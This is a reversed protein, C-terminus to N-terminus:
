YRIPRIPFSRRRLGLCCTRRAAAQQRGRHPGGNHDCCAGGAKVDAYALVKWDNGDSLFAGTAEFTTAASGGTESTDFQNVGLQFQDTDGVAFAAPPISITYLHWLNDTTPISLREFVGSASHLNFWIPGAGSTVKIWIGGTMTKNNIVSTGFSQHIESANTGSSSVAPMAIRTVNGTTGDPLTDSVTTVTPAAPAGFGSTPWTASVSLDNNQLAWNTIGFNVATISPDFGGGVPARASGGASLLTVTGAISSQGFILAVLFLAALVGPIRKM